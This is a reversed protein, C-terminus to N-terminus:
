RRRARRASMTGRNRGVVKTGDAAPMRELAQVAALVRAGHAVQEAQLDVDVREQGSLILLPKSLM